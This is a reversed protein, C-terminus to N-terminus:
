REGGSPPGPSAAPRPSGAPRALRLRDLEEWGTLRRKEEDFFRLAIWQAHGDVFLYNAGDNHRDRVDDAAIVASPRDDDCWGGWYVYDTKGGYAPTEPPGVSRGRRLREASPCILAASDPLYNPVLPWLNNNEPPFHGCHDQAYMKLATSINALNSLCNTQYGKARARAFVPFLIAALIAIIAWVITLEIFTFGRKNM